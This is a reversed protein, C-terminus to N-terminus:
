TTPNKIYNEFFRCVSKYGNEYMQCKKETSLDFDIASINDIIIKIVNKKYKKISMETIGNILSNIVNIAYKDITENSNMNTLNEIACIGLMENEHESFQELPFNDICGGDIYLNGNFEVPTFVFPIQITMRISHIVKMTPHTLHSLYEVKRMQVNVVTVILTKGTKEYLEKFTIDFSIKKREVFKRLIEILADGSNLGYSNIFLSVDINKLKSFDFKKIFSYLEDSTYGLMYVFLVLAGASTGAFIEFYELIHLDELAKLAGIYSIGKIGGGSLVLIKKNIMRPVYVPLFIETDDVCRLIKNIKDEIKDIIKQQKM